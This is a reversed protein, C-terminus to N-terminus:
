VVAQYAAAQLLYRALHMVNATGDIGERKWSVRPGLCTKGGLVVEGGM